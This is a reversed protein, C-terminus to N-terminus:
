GDLLRTLNRLSAAASRLAGLRRSKWDRLYDDPDLVDM